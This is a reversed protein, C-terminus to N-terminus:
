IVVVWALSTWDFLFQTGPLPQRWAWRPNELHYQKLTRIARQSDQAPVILGWGQEANSDITTEIGQSVLVLSWDMAQQQSRAPIRTTMSSGPIQTTSEVLTVM